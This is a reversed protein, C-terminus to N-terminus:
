VSKKPTAKGDTTGGFNRHCYISIKDGLISTGTELEAYYACSFRIYGDGTKLIILDPSVSAAMAHFTIEISQFGDEGDQEQNDTYYIIKSPNKEEYYRKLESLRLLKKM